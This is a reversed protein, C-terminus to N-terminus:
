LHRPHTTSPSILYSDLCSTFRAVGFGFLIQSYPFEIQYESDLDYMPSVYYLRSQQRGRNITWPPLARSHLQLCAHPKRNFCRTSTLMAGKPFRADGPYRAQRPM